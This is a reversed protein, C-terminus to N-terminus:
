QVHVNTVRLTRRKKHRYLLDQSQSTMRAGRNLSTKDPKGVKKLPKKTCKREGPSPQPLSGRHVWYCYIADAIVVALAVVANSRPSRRTQSLIILRVYVWSSGALMNPHRKEHVDRGGERGGDRM